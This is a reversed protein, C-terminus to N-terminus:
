LLVRGERSAERIAATTGIVLREIAYEGAGDAGEPAESAAPPAPEAGCAALAALLAASLLLSFLRRM